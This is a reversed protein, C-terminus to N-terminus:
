SYYSYMYNKSIIRSAHHKIPQHQMYTQYTINIIESYVLSTYGNPVLPVRSLTLSHLPTLLNKYLIEYTKM